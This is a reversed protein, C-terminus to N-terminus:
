QNHLIRRSRSQTPRQGACPVTGRHPACRNGGAAVLLVDRPRATTAGRERRYIAWHYTAIGGTTILLALPVQIASAFDSSGEDFLAGFIVVLLSILAIFAVAGGIGFVAFVYVRRTVSGAEVDGEHQVARQALQWSVIWLPSGVILM